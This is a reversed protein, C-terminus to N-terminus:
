VASGGRRVLAGGDGGRGLSPPGLKEGGGHQLLHGAGPTRGVPSPAPGAYRPGASDPTRSPQLFPPTELSSKGEGSPTGLSPHRAPSPKGDSPNRMRRLNRLERARLCLLRRGRLSRSACGSRNRGPSGTGRSGGDTRVADHLLGTCACRVFRCSRAAKITLVGPM